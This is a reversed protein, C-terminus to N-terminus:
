TASSGKNETTLPVPITKSLMLLYLFTKIFGYIFMFFNDKILLSKRVKDNHTRIDINIKKEFSEFYTFFISDITISTQEM